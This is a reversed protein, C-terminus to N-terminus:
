IISALGRESYNSALMFKHVLQLILLISSPLLGRFSVLSSSTFWHVM